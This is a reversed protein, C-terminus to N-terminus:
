RSQASVYAISVAIGCFVVAIVINSCFYIWFLVPQKARNARWGKASIDGTKLGTYASFGLFAGAGLFLLVIWPM